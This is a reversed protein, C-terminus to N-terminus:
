QSSNYHFNSVARVAIALLRSQSVMMMEKINKDYLYPLAPQYRFLSIMLIRTQKQWNDFFFIVLGTSLFIM